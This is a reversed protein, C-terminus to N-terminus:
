AALLHPLSRALHVARAGRGLSYYIWTGRRRSEVLQAERLVKLHHSIAPASLTLGSSLDCVCIPGDAALVAAFLRVRAPDALAKFAASVGDVADQSQM